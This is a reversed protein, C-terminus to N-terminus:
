PLVPGSWNTSNIKYWLNHDFSFTNPDTNPGINVETSVNSEIVVINNFFANEGCPLFRTPDVTEQLIRMAWKSPRVITNHFVEVRRCGVFAIPAISGEFYNSFVQIDSAESTANQPRFFQLGTSGGLNLTRNGANFFQNSYYRLHSSGGKAQIANDGPNRFFCHHIEGYHCGVMDIGSGGPSGNEFSCNEIMFSDLGSLKLLDNNGTASISRFICNRITIHKSPTNISSADDINMGNGTQFECILDELIIHKCDSFQISNGGGSIITKSGVKGKITIAKNPLGSKNQFTLGGAITSELIQITDGPLVIQMASSLTQYTQNSGVYLIRAHSIQIWIIYCLLLFIKAKM